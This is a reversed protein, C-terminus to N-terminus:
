EAGVPRTRTWSEYRQLWRALRPRQPLFLRYGLELLRLVGPVRALRAAWRWGPLLSWLEVFGAAGSVVRGDGALVHFRALALRRDVGAPTPAGPASVDVFCLAAASDVRQYHAIERRCLPCAGDFYVTVAAPTPPPPDADPTEM